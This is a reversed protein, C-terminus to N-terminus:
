KAERLSSGRWADISQRLAVGGTSATRWSELTPDSGRPEPNPRRLRARTPLLVAEGSILAEGTRLSPLVSTLGAVADPLANRVTAQDASNTLRLTVMTGCQSLATEPLESPRQSVLCVGLGYKRGERAIRNAATRALRTARSDGLYRHAEELVVLIPRDRGIGDGAGSRVSLEFLTDLVIGIAVDAVEAPVGSFDLVSIPLNGGLWEGVARALADPEDPRPIQLFFGFRPDRLRLYLREPAPSYHGHTNGKFPAASGLGYPEFQAPTLTEFDGPNELAPQGTSKSGVVERNAYDLEYWVAKLNYPIPTDPTIDDRVLDLWPANEAFDRRHKVVLERFKDVVTRSDVGSLVMLLDAAPLAWYPVRLGADGSGLVSRVSAQRELASRYEGHPDVVIINAASWGGGVVSQLLASIASTKGSGTSGVIASHRTVFAALDLSVEVDPSSALSGIAVHSGDRAPYAAALDAATTFHVSDDLGPYTSVGRRFTGLADVEGLLQVQLWRDGQQPIVSPATPTTLEAIGVLTVSGVLSVPGQPIRVLSGIQGIPVPRGRWIPTVGALEPELEVTILPGLVHRVRGIVTPNRSPNM